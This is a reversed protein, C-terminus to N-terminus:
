AFEKYSHWAACGLLGGTVHFFISFVPTFGAIIIIVLLVIFGVFSAALYDLQGLASEGTFFRVVLACLAINIALSILFLM